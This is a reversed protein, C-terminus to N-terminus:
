GPWPYIVLNRTQGCYSGGEQPLGEAGFYSTTTRATKAVKAIMVRCLAHCDEESYREPHKAYRRMKPVFWAISHVRMVITYYFRFM